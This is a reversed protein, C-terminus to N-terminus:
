VFWEAEARRQYTEELQTKHYLYNPDAFHKAHRPCRKVCAGCKICIGKVESPSDPDISGMPCLTACLSCKTCDLTTSPKVKRIDFRQQQADMPQYHQRYPYPTGKMYPRSFNNYHLKESVLNAFTEAKELDDADPRGQALTFSFSHTGVFAAGAVVNMGCNELIDSAELLADDYDRNGFVVIAIATAGNGQMANLYEILVNPVRGAYVPTGFVVLDDTEFQIPEQRNKPLTFDYECSPCDLLRSLSRTIARIITQTTGTASFYVSKITQFITKM